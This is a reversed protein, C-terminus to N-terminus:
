ISSKKIIGMKLKEGCLSVTFIVTIRDKPETVGHPNSGKIFYGRQPTQKWFLGLSKFLLFFIFYVFILGTEDLNLINNKEFNEFINKLNNEKWQEFTIKDAGNSQGCIKVSRIKYRKRWRELFSQSIRKEIGLLKKFQNVMVDLTNEAVTVKAKPTNNVNSIWMYLCEDLMPLSSLRQHLCNKSLLEKKSINEIFEREELIGNLTNSHIDLEECISTKKRYPNEKIINDYKLIIQKKQHITFSKWKFKQNERYIM